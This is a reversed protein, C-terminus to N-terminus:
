GLRAENPDRFANADALARLAAEYSSMPIRATFDQLRDMARVIPSPNDSRSLARLAVLCDDRFVTPLIIRTLGEHVLEANMMLRAVRGNGDVFPHVEAVLFMMFIARPLGPAVACAMEFGKLLTGQVLDPEVFFTQGARNGEEKFEGPARDPRAEMIDHHRSRLLDLLDKFSGPVAAPQDLGVAVRFTGTIDHADEPRNRPAKNHFVIDYAEDIEFETGEIYNSFYAEFFALLQKEEASTRTETRAAFEAQALEAFLRNFIDLRTPDYPMGVSRARAGPSSLGDASRTRLLAGIMADLKRFSTEMHLTASLTRASDRLANLADAGQTRCVRDLRYEIKAKTLTKSVGSRSRAVQLNELFARPRSSIFLGNLFPLDTPAPEPGKMLHVRVGPLVILKTYKYTLFVDGTETPGGELTSRHSLVARPFLRGLVPYLNRRVIEEDPDAFNSTYVRPAIKRLKGSKVWRSIRQSLASDSASFVIEPLNNEM